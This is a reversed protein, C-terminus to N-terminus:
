AVVEVVARRNGFYLVDGAALSTAQRPPLDVRNGAREIGVGNTSDLDEISPPSATLRAHTKSLSLTADAIAVVVDSGTPTPNRGVLTPATVYTATGDDWTLTVTPLRQEVRRTVDVDDIDGLAPPAPAEPTPAARWEAFPDDGPEPTKPAGPTVPTTPENAWAPGAGPTAVPLPNVIDPVPTQPPTAAPQPNVVDPVPIQAPTAKPAADIHALAAGEADSRLRTSAVPVSDIFGAARAPIPAPASEEQRSFPVADILFGARQASQPEPESPAYGPVEIIPEDTM